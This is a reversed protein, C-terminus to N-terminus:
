PRVAPMKRSPDDEPNVYILKWPGVSHVQVETAGKAMAYHHHRAPLVVFGGAPMAEMKKEDFADGMGIMFSGSMVTIHEDAFHWHPAVRYGDPLRLRFTFLKGAVKPDGQLVALTAGPPLEPPPAGFMMQEPKLVIPSAVSCGVTGPMWGTSTLGPLMMEAPASAATTRTTGVMSSASSPERAPEATSCGLASTIIGGVVFAANRSTLKM